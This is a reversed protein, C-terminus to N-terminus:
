SDDPYAEALLLESLTYAGDNIKSGAELFAHIKDMISANNYPQDRLEDVLKQMALLFPTRNELIGAVCNEIAKKIAEGPGPGEAM